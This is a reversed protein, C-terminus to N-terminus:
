PAINVGMVEEPNHFQWGGPNIHNNSRGPNTCNNGGPNNCNLDVGPSIRSNDSGPNIRNNDRGPNGNNNDRGPNGHNSDSGPNVHNNSRRPNVHNNNNGPNVHNNDSGPHICSNGGVPKINNGRGVVMGFRPNTHTDSEAPNGPGGSSGGEGSSEEGEVSDRSPPAPSGVPVESGDMMELGELDFRANVNFVVHKGRADLIDTHRLLQVESKFTTTGPAIPLQLPFKHTKLGKSAATIDLCLFCCHHTTLGDMHKSPIDLSIGLYSFRDPWDTTEMKYPIFTLTLKATVRKNLSAIKPINVSMRYSQPKESKKAYSRHFWKRRIKMKKQAMKGQAVVTPTEPTCITPTM